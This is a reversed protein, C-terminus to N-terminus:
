VNNLLLILVYVYVDCFLSLILFVVIFRTTVVLFIIHIFKKILIKILFVFNIQLAKKEQKCNRKYTSFISEEYCNIAYKHSSIEEFM